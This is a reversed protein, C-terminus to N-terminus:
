PLPPPGFGRARENPRQPPRAMKPKSGLEPRRSKLTNRVLAIMDAPVAEDNMDKKLSHGDPAGFTVSAGKRARFTSRVMVSFPVTMTHSIPDGFKNCIAEDRM